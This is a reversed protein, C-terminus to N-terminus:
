VTILRSVLVSWVHRWLRWESRRITDDTTDNTDTPIVRQRRENKAESESGKKDTIHKRAFKARLITMLAIFTMVVAAGSVFVLIQLYFKEPTQIVTKRNFDTNNINNPEIPEIPEIFSSNPGLVQDFRSSLSNNVPVVTVSINFATSLPNFNQIVAIVAGNVLKDFFSMAGFVFAGSLQILVFFWDSTNLLITKWVINDDILDATLSLSGILMATGGVGFLAAVSFVQWLTISLGGLLIWFCSLIGFICGITMIYQFRFAFDSVM